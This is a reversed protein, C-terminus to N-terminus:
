RYNLSDRDATETLQIAMEYETPPLYGLASHLRKSNYVEEIFHPIRQTVDDFTEYIALQVEEYKLTKFFSEMHANDYPNATRPISIQMNAAEVMVIYERCAYQVGRDLADPPPHRAELAIKLAALCLEANIRKSIARGIVKRSYRDLIAALFAFGM